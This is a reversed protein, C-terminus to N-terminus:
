DLHFIIKWATKGKPNIGSRFSIKTVAKVLTKDDCVLKISPIAKATYPCHDNSLKIRGNEMVLVQRAFEEDDLYRKITTKEGSSIKELTEHRVTMTLTNDKSAPEQKQLRQQPKQQPKAQQPKQPLPTSEREENLEDGMRYKIDYNIIFDLEEETFGYHTALAKDIEDIIPKSKAPLYQAFTVDGTRYVADVMEANDQMEQMLVDCLSILKKKLQGNINEYEIPFDKLDSPNNTRADSHMVYYWFYLSSNLVSTFVKLQEITDFYLHTERSSSSKVGNLFFLPKFTSMFKWYRGGSNKYYFVNESNRVSYYGINKSIDNLSKLMDCEASCCIKPFIDSRCVEKSNFYSVNQFLLKRNESKWKYYYTTYITNCNSQNGLQSVFISLNREAGEFLKSPREAYNSIYSNATKNIFVKMLSEMRATCFASIPIIMGIYNGNKMICFSREICYSYLNGSDITNYNHVTYISRVKSYEVYPPNGIIVDFGGNGYIIDYFEALWHFPQHTRKWKDYDMGPATAIHLNHNLLENLKALRDKLQAKAHKFTELDADQELQVKRFTDYASSVIDIENYVKSEFEERAFMDMYKVGEEMEKETAYGVLTNGCRINFDVDPLPELGLNQDRPNVDVVAVMKLFLRLKAIETAEVMIDVGYLNRLIISKYIFYRINSRYKVNLERLEEEFLKPNQANWDQMRTICVEYLPELINLAAFLFAGSGCTPDLISVHQLASYFHKVLLHDDTNLLVDYTFQRIDLNYTIFDNVETIEGKVIKQRISDYRQLREVTERWIETPLNWPEPTRENWRSRRELLNPKTTDIGEAIYDPIPTEHGHKVADYIYTDGSEKLFQWISGNTKFANATTKKTADLLFPVITNRGIYETIDEKTYYAGMQARDNIYQEFIYGLVDPNIDRGTATLRDDLHWHWNDFFAFLSVFAEDAIDIDPYNKELEHEDFMGGNLYPIRGYKQLFDREHRPSNLGDHFLSRLFGKYFTYFKGSRQQVLTLKDRLYNVNLDLFGKKQIFYCFMLRNLMVSTYWQKNQNNKPEINDDIGTIFQAFRTHEKRFGKYFDNTIKESNIIFTGQVREKVDMITTREDLGFTLDDVKEFLFGAREATEYEVLVLDRKEVKKVPVVWLHHQSKPLHYICIYDNAQRRLRTDIKKCLSSTPIEAQQCTLVQFGSREAILQFTYTIGEILLDFSKQGHPNNWGMERIFLERFNSEAIHETFTRKNM